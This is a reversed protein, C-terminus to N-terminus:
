GGINIIRLDLDYRKSIDIMHKTGRSKGDWFTVCADAYEAMQVNRRYGASKGFKDWEAPFVQLLCDKEKAYREGLSDAGRAGGSVIEVKSMEYRIFLGDLTVRLKEYDTFDRTGAVIVKYLGM